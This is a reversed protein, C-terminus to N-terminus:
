SILGGSSVSAISRYRPEPAILPMPAAKALLITFFNLASVKRIMSSSGSRSESTLPILSRIAMSILLWTSSFRSSRWAM